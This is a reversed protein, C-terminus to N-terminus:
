VSRLRTRHGVPRRGIAKRVADRVETGALKIYMATTSPDQHRAADQAAAPQVKAVETIYRARVDHFRHPQDIGARRASAWWSKRISKLPVWCGAPVEKGRLFKQFHKKGPWTILYMVGRDRAQAELRELLEGGAQGGYAIEDNGSKTEGPGFRLVTSVIEVGGEDVYIERSLHRRSAWFAEGHRLGFLRSLEAADRTWPPATDLRAALEADGIPTPLRKPLKHLKIEPAIEVAPVKSVPDRTKAGIEFLAKLCKLYNNVQRKSRPRKTDKWYREAGPDDKKRVAGGMWVKVTQSACFRRYSEIDEQTIDAMARHGNLFARIERVYIVHNDYNSRETEEKRSLYFLCAQNLTYAARKVGSAAVRQDQRAAQRRSSEIDLAEKRNKAAEGTKFDVCYGKYRTGNLWFDYSWRKGRRRDQFVSM